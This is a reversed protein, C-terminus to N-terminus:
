IVYLIPNMLIVMKIDTNTYQSVYDSGHTTGVWRAYPVEYMLIIHQRYSRLNIPRAFVNIKSEKFVALTSPLCFRLTRDNAPLLPHADRDSLVSCVKGEAITNLYIIINTRHKRLWLDPANM